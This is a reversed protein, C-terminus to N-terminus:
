RRRRCAPWRGNWVYRDLELQLANAHGALAVARRDRDALDRDPWERALKPQRKIPLAGPGRRSPRGCGPLDGPSETRCRDRATSAPWFANAQTSVSPFSWRWSADGSSWRDGGPPGADCGSRPSRIPSPRTNGAGAGTKREARGSRCGSVTQNPRSCRPSSSRPEAEADALGLAAAAREDGPEVGRGAGVLPQADEIKEGVAVGLTGQLFGQSVGVAIAEGLQGAIVREGAVPVHRGGIAAISSFALAPWPRNGVEDPHEFVHAHLDHVEGLKVAVAVRLVGTRQAQGLHLRHEGLALPEGIRSGTGGRRPPWCRVQARGARALLGAM